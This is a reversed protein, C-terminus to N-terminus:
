RPSAVMGVGPSLPARHEEQVANGGAAVQPAVDDTQQAGLAPANGDVQREAPMGRSRRVLIERQRREGIEDRRAVVRQLESVDVEDGIVGAAGDCLYERGAM